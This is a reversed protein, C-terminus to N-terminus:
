KRLNLRRMSNYYEEFVIFMIILKYGINTDTRNILDSFDNFGNKLYEYTRVARNNECLSKFDPYINKITNIHKSDVELPVNVRRSDDNPIDLSLSIEPKFDEGSINKCYENWYDYSNKDRILVSKYFEYFVTPSITKVVSEDIEVEFNKSLLSLDVPKDFKLDYREYFSEIKEWLDEVTIERYM